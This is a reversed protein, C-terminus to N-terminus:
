GRLIVPCAQAATAALAIVSGADTLWWGHVPEDLDGWDVQLQRWRVAGDPGLDGSVVANRVDLRLGERRVKSAAEKASWILNAMLPGDADSCAFVLRQEAPALWDSVFARSRPEILEIDCGAVSPPSVVAAIARDGRHSLSVSVPLREGHLWAEPAGDAAAIVEVSEPPLSLWTSVASKATWRGLRWSSQRPAVSFRSFARREAATLWRDGRPVEALQRSLWGITGM